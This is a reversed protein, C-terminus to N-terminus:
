EVVPSGRGALDRGAGGSAVRVDLLQPGVTHSLTIALLSRADTRGAAHGVLYSITRASEDDLLALM